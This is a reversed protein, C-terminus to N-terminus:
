DPLRHLSFTVLQAAIGPEREMSYIELAQLKGGTENAEAQRVVFDLHVSFTSGDPLTNTLQATGIGSATIEYTGTSTIPVIKRTQASASDPANLILTRQLNGRGDFHTIGISAAAHDGGLGVLAYRGQLSANDFDAAQVQAIGTAALLLLILFKYRSLPLGTCKPNDINITM